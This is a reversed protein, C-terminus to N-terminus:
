VELDCIQDAHTRLKASSSGISSASNHQYPRFVREASPRTSNSSGTQVRFKSSVKRLKTCQCMKGEKWCGVEGESWM